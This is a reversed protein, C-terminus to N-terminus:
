GLEDLLQRAAKLDGTDFGETFWGYVPALVDRADGVKGQQLLLRALSVATRLEWGKAQQARAARLSTRYSKEAGHVDGQLARIWGQVRLAEPYYLREEWGPREIQEIAEGVIALAHEHDGTSALGIGLLTKYWPVALHGDAGEWLAIGAKLAQIGQAYRGSEIDAMGAYTTAMFGWLVPLCNERGVADCEIALARFKDPERRLLYAESGETLAFGLDFPHGRRRAHANNEDCLRAAREPYGLMWSVTAAYCGVLSKPDHNLVGALHHHKVPDYLKEVEDRHRLCLTYAGTWYHAASTLMQAAIVLDPDRTADAAQQMQKAWKIAEAARGPSMVNWYLGWIIPLLAENHGLSQALPLAPELIRTVEQAAWGRFALTAMGLLSRLNLEHEDRQRGPPLRAILELGKRLHCIAEAFALRGIALEGAKCWHPMAAEFRGAETLHHALIEPKTQQVQPRKDQIASAIMAHLEQRRSKLLSDYAADQILAHKFVYTADPPTGRRFALGADTLQELARELEARSRPAVAEILDYSFERGIVSGVQAVEQVTRDRDLRAMLSDKLTVPIAISDLSSLSEYRDEREEIQKSELVARTLEEVFLPIGDTKGVIVDLLNGPLAKNKAIRRVMSGSQTRTLRSLNLVSVHNHNGWRNGFEPRHTLVLLAPMDRIREVLLDLVELSSPDAWHADEFLLLCPREAAVAEVLDVLTRLTEEKFRQPTMPAARERDTIPLSLLTAIFPLDQAPRGLRDLLAGVKALRAAADENHELQLARELQDIIPYLASNTHYPSCQYSSVSAGTGALRQRLVRLLRSKGIGPTGGILVVQGEGDCAQRWRRLLLRLEEKRGVFPTLQASGRAAEFRSELRRVRRVEWARVPQAIGKLPHLGLDNLEFADGVLRRTSPAIVVQDPAALAQLRAALNPTEGVALKAEADDAPTVAGVVVTGTAVGIHVALPQDVRVAKIARVLDLAARVSREADDEHALPWGFYAMLADGRYQAVHGEYRAVVDDCARRYAQMVTRLEEPDLREALETSGVLDCFLVTLQRRDAHYVPEPRPFPDATQAAVQARTAAGLSEVAAMLRRRPGTPLGLRDVDSETLYPLVELTIEHEAFVGAYKGLGLGQLWDAIDTV